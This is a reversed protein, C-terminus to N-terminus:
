QLGQEQSSLMTCGLRGTLGGMDRRERNRQLLDGERELCQVDKAGCDYGCSLRLSVHTSVQALCTSWCGGAGKRRSHRPARTQRATGAIRCTGKHQYTEPCVRERNTHQPPPEARMENVICTHVNVSHVGPSEIHLRLEPM